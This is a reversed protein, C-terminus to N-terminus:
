FKTQKIKFISTIVKLPQTLFISSLASVLFSTLWKRVLDDGFEIGKFIIFLISVIIMMSSLIYAIIKFWWPLLFKQSKKKNDNEIKERESNTPVITKKRISLVTKVRELTQVNVPEPLSKSLFFCLM